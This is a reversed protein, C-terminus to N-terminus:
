YSLYPRVWGISVEVFIVKMIVNTIPEMIGNIRDDLTMTSESQATLSYPLFGSIMVLWKLYSPHFM